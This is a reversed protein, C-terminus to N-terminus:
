SQINRSESCVQIWCIMPTRREMGCASGFMKPSMSGGKAGAKRKLEVPQRKRPHEQRGLEFEIPMADIELGKTWKRETQGISSEKREM